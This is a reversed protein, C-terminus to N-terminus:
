WGATDEWAWGGGSNKFLLPAPYFMIALQGYITTQGATAVSFLQDTGFVSPDLPTSGCVSHQAAAAGSHGIAGGSGGTVEVDFNGLGSTAHFVAVYIGPELVRVQTRDTGGYPFELWTPAASGASWAQDFHQKGSSISGDTNNFYAVLPGGAAAVESPRTQPTAVGRSTPSVPSAVNTRGGLFGPALRRQFTAQRTQADALAKAISGKFRM